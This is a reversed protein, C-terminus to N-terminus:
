KKLFYRPLQVALSSSPQDEKVSKQSDTKAEPVFVQSSQTIVAPRLIANHWSAMTTIAIAGQSHDSWLLSM